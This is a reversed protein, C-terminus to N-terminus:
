IRLHSQDEHIKWIRLADKGVETVTKGQLTNLQLLQQSPLDGCCNAPCHLTEPGPTPHTPTRAANTRTINISNTWLAETHETVEARSRKNTLYRSIFGDTLEQLGTGKLIAGEATRVSVACTFQSGEPEGTDQVGRCTQGSSCTNGESSSGKGSLFIVAAALRVSPFSGIVEAFSSTLKCNDNRLPDTQAAFDCHDELVPLPFAAM